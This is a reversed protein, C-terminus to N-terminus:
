VGGCCFSIFISAECIGGIERIDNAKLYWIVFVKSILIIGLLSLLGWMGGCFVWFIGRVSCGFVMWVVM